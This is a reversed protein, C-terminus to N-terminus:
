FASVYKAASSRRHVGILPLFSEMGLTGFLLLDLHFMSRARVERATFGKAKNNDANM